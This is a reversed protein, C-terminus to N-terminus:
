RSLDAQAEFPPPLVGTDTVPFPDPIIIILKPNLREKRSLLVDRKSHKKCYYQLFFVSSVIIVCFPSVKNRLTRAFIRASIVTETDAIPKSLQFGTHLFGCSADVIVIHFTAASSTSVSTASTTLLGSGCM